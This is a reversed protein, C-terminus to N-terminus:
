LSRRLQQRAPAGGQTPPKLNSAQIPQLATSGGSPAQSEEHSRSLSLSLALSLSISLSLSFHISGLLKGGWPKEPHGESYILPFDEIVKDKQLKQGKEPAM